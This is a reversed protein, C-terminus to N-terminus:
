VRGRGHRSWRESEFELERAEYANRYENRGASQTGALPFGPRRLPGEVLREGRSGALSGEILNFISGM